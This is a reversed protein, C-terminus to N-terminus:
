PTSVQSVTGATDLIELMCQQGDVEVQQSLSFLLLYFTSILKLDISAVADKHLICVVRVSTYVGEARLISFDEEARDFVITGSVYIFTSRSILWCCFGLLMFVCLLQSCDAGEVGSVKRYSDEITPDYKEM